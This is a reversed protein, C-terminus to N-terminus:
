VQYDVSYRSNPRSPAPKVNVMPDVEHHESSDQQQASAQLWSNPQRNHMNFASADSGIAVALNNMQLGQATFAAKLQPLHEQILHHTQATQTLMRVSVDGDAIHLQILVQGLSEPQLHLRVETEGQRTILTVKEVIQHLAPIDPLQARAEITTPQVHVTSSQVNFMESQPILTESQPVPNLGEKLVNAKPLPRTEITSAPTTALPSRTESAIPTQMTQNVLEQAFSAAPKSVKSSPAATISTAITESQNAMTATRGPTPHLSLVIQDDKNTKQITLPPTLASTENAVREVVEPAGIEPPPAQPFTSLPQIQALGAMLELVALQSQDETGEEELKQDTEDDPPFVVPLEAKSENVVPQLAAMIETLTVPTEQQGDEAMPAGQLLDLAPGSLNPDQGLIKLLATSAASGSSPNSFTQAQNIQTGATMTALVQNFISPTNENIVIPGQSDSSVPETPAALLTGINM